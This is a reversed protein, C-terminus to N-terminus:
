GTGGRERRAAGAAGVAADKTEWDVGKAHLTAQPADVSGPRAQEM